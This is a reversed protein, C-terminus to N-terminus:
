RIQLAISTQTTRKIKFAVLKGLICRMCVPACKATDWHMAFTEGAIGNIHPTFNNCSLTTYMCTCILKM